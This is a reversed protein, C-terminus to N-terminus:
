KRASHAAGQRPAPRLLANGAPVVPTGTPMRERADLSANQLITIITGIREFNDPNCIEFIYDISVGLLVSCPIEVLQRQPVQIALEETMRLWSDAGCFAYMLMDQLIDHVSKRGTPVGDLGDGVIFGHM